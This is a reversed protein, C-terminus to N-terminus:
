MGQEYHMYSYLNQLNTHKNIIAQDHQSLPPLAGPSYISNTTDLHQPKGTKDLGGVEPSRIGRKEGRRKNIHVTIAKCGLATQLSVPM